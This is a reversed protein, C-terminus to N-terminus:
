KTAKAYSNLESALFTAMALRHGWGRLPKGDRLPPDVVERAMRDAVCRVYEAADRLGQRRGEERAADLQQQGPLEAVFTENAEVLDRVKALLDEFTDLGDRPDGVRGLAATLDDCADDLAEAAVEERFALEAAADPYRGQCVPCKEPACIQRACAELGPPVIMLDPKEAAMQRLAGSISAAVSPEIHKGDSDLRVTVLDGVRATFQPRALRTNGCIPCPEVADGERIQEAVCHCASPLPHPM